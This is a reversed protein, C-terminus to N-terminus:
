RLEGARGTGVNRNGLDARGGAAHGAARGAYSGSANFGRGSRLKGHMREVERDVQKGRDVLAVATGPEGSQEEKRYMDRLRTRVRTGFGFLFERRDKFVESSKSRYRGEPTAKYDKWWKKLATNAQMWLSHWLVELRDLDSEYGILYVYSTHNYEDRKLVKVTGMGLAINHVLMVEAQYYRHHIKHTREVIKEPRVDHGGRKAALLADSIGWKVMLEEAKRSYTEAEAPTAAPNEAKALLAAIKAAYDPTSM